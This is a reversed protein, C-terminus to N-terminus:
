VEYEKVNLVINDSTSSFLQKESAIKWILYPMSGMDKSIDYTFPRKLIKENM